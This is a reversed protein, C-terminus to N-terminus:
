LPRTSALDELWDACEDDDAPPTQNPVFYWTEQHEAYEGPPVFEMSGLTEIEIMDQRTFAEFNCGFDPYTADSDFDFRKLFVHGQYALAAYGQDIQAGVKTAGREPDHRLRAVRDGWTYRPDALKTYNWLVLPRAPLVKEDHSVHEAQPFLIEGGACQTPSWTAYELHYPSHNYVRHLLIFRDHEPEARILIQKQTHYEDPASTFATFGDLHTVVVPDNDPRFTRKDEEPAIWLRHGGYGHFKPEGTKGADHPNVFFMNPGGVPGFSIVRPGVDLTVIMEVDKCVFRANHQWGSFSVSEM